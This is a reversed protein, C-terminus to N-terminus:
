VKKRLKNWDVKAFEKNNCFPCSDLDTSEIPKKHPSGCNTCKYEAITPILAYEIGCKDGTCKVKGNGVGELKHIHGKICTPCSIDDHIHKEHEPIEKTTKTEEKQETKEDKIEQKSLNSTQDNVLNTNKLMQSVKSTSTDIPKLNKLKEDFKKELEDSVVKATETSIKKATNEIMENLEDDRSKIVPKAM